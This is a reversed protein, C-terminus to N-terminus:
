AMDSPLTNKNLYFSEMLNPRRPHEIIFVYYCIHLLFFGLLFLKDLNTLM